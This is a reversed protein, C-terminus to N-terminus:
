GGHVIPIFVIEDGDKIVAELGGLLDMERGNILVITNPRPDRMEPDLLIERLANTEKLIGEIVDKLRAENSPLNLFFESKGSIKKLLGLMKIRIRM